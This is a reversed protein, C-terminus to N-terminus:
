FKDADMNRIQYKIIRAINMASICLLDGSLILHIMKNPLGEHCSIYLYFLLTNMIGKPLVVMKKITDIESLTITKNGLTYSIGNKMTYIDFARRRIKCGLKHQMSNRKAMIQQGSIRYHVLPTQFNYFNVGKAYLETWLAYDQSVVFDENYCKPSPLLCKKMMVTPHAFATELFLFIDKNPEPFYKLGKRDGIYDIISGCVGIEPHEELLKVQREFRGPLSIDDADMRAIYTGEAIAVGKNLSKTLGINTENFLLKIRNDKGAYNNLLEIGKEYNPNDCIIIFEFDTYTQGLISNISQCLWEVPEKYVSMIVSLKPM